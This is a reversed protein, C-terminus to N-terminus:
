SYSKVLDQITQNKTDFNGCIGLSGSSWSAALCGQSFNSSINLCPWFPIWWDKPCTKRFIHYWNRGLGVLCRVQRKSIRMGEINQFRVFSHFSMAWTSHGRLNKKLDPQGSEAFMLGRSHKVGVFLVKPILNQPGYNKGQSFEWCLIEIATIQIRM